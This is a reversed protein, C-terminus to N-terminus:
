GRPKLVAGDSVELDDRLELAGQELGRLIVRREVHDGPMSIVHRVFVIQSLEHDDVRDAEIM